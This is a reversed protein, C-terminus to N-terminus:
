SQKPELLLLQLDLWKGKNYNFGRFSAINKFSRNLTNAEHRFAVAENSPILVAVAQNRKFALHYSQYVVRNTGLTFALSPEQYGDAILPTKDNVVQQLEIANDITRKIRNTLWLPKLSPLLGGYLLPFSIVSLLITIM